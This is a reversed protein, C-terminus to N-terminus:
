YLNKRAVHKQYIQVIDDLTGLIAGYLDASCQHLELSEEFIEIFEKARSFRLPLDDIFGQVTERIDSM